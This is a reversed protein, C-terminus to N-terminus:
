APPPRAGPGTKGERGNVHWQGQPHALRERLVAAVREVFDRLAAEAVRHLLARDLLLGIAALPPTYRASVSLQTLRRGLPAVELEANVEPLPTKGFTKWCLPMVTAQGLKVPDGIQIEGRSRMRQGRAEFGVEILLQQERESAAAVVGPVWDAPSTVLLAREVAEVPYELEVFYKTFIPGAM